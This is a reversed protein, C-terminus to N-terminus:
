SGTLGPQDRGFAHGPADLVQEYHARAVVGGWYPVTAAAMLPLLLLVSVLKKM